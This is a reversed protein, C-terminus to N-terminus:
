HEDQRVGGAMSKLRAVIKNMATLSRRSKCGVVSVRGSKFLILTGLKTRITIGPFGNQCFTVMCEPEFERKLDEISAQFPEGLDASASINDIKVRIHKRAYYLSFITMFIDINQNVRYFSRNGTLNVFKYSFICFVESKSLRVTLINGTKKFCLYESLNKEGAAIQKPDKITFRCKINSVKLKM